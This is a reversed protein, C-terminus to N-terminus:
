ATTFTWTRTPFTTWVSGNDYQGSVRVQYSTHPDLARTAALMAANAPLNADLSANSTATQFRVATHVAVPTHSAGKTLTIHNVKLAAYGDAQLSIVYGVTAAAGPFPSPLERQRDFSVPVGTQGPAPYTTLRKSPAQWTAALELVAASHTHGLFTRASATGYGVAQNNADLLPFRHYPADVWSQLGHLVGGTTTVNESQSSWTGDQLGAAKTRDAGTVGTFGQRGLTQRHQSSDAGGDSDAQARYSAHSAAANALAPMTTASAAPVGAQARIANLQAYIDGASEAAVACPTALALSLAAATATVAVAVTISFRKAM